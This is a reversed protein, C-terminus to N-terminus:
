SYGRVQQLNGSNCSKRNTTAYMKLRNLFDIKNVCSRIDRINKYLVKFLSYPILVVEKKNRIFVKLRDFLSEETVEDKMTEVEEAVFVNLEDIQELIQKEEATGVVNNAQELMENEIKTVDEIDLLVDFEIEVQPSMEVKEFFSKIEFESISHKLIQVVKPVSKIVHWLQAPFTWFKQEIEILIYGKLLSSIKKTKQRFSKIENALVLIQERYTDLLSKEADKHRKLSEYQNRLNSLGSSMRQLYLHDTVDDNNIDEINLNQKEKSVFGTCTEMAYIAKVGHNVYRTELLNKIMEKVQIESGTHVQIAFFAM